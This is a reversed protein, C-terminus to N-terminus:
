QIEMVTILGGTHPDLTAALEVAEKPSLGCRMATTAVIGGSGIAIPADMRIRSFNVGGVLFVGDKSVHLAEFWVGDDEPDPVFLPRDKKKSGARLWDLYAQGLDCDGRTGVIEDGIHFIKVESRSYILDSTILGDAAVTKGDTAITTV